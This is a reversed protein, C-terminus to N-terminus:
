RRDRPSSAGVVAARFREFRADRDSYRADIESRTRDHECEIFRRLADRQYPELNRDAGLLVEAALAVDVDDRSALWLKADAPVHVLLEALADDAAPSGIAVVDPYRPPLGDVPAWAAAIFHDPTRARLGAVDHEGAGIAHVVVGSWCGPEYRTALRRALEFALM